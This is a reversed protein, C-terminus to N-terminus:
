VMCIPYEARTLVVDIALLPKESRHHLSLLGLLMGIVQYHFEWRHGKVRVWLLYLLM